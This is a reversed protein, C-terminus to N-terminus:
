QEPRGGQAGQDPAHALGHLHQAAPERFLGPSRQREPRRARPIRTETPGQDGGHNAPRQRTAAPRNAQDRNTPRAAPGIEQDRDRDRDRNRDRDRETGVITLFTMEATAARHTRYDIALEGEVTVGAIIGRIVKREGQRNQNNGAQNAANQDQNRTQGQANNQDQSADPGAHGPGPKADPGPEPNSEPGPESEGDAGLRDPLDGAGPRADDPRPVPHADLRGQQMRRHLGHTRRSDGRGRSMAMEPLDLAAQGTPRAIRCGTKSPM